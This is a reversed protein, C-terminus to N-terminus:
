KAILNQFIKILRSNLKNIDYNKIIHKRGYIGMRLRIKPNKILYEIKKAMENINRAPVLFGSKGDPLVESIGGVKTAVIPFGVAQAEM